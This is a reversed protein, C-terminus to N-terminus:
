KQEELYKLLQDVTDHLEVYHSGQLEFAEKWEKQEVTLRGKGSKVEIILAPRKEKKHIAFFDPFGKNKKNIIDGSYSRYEIHIIKYNNLLLLDEVAKELQQWRKM